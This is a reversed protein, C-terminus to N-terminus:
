LKTLSFSITNNYKSELPPNNDRPTAGTINIGSLKVIKQGYLAIWSSKLTLVGVALAFHDINIM